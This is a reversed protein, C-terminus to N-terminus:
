RRLGEDPRLGACSQQHAVGTADLLLGTEETTEGSTTRSLVSRGSSSSVSSDPNGHHRRSPSRSGTVSIVRTSRHHGEDPALREGLTREGVRLVAGACCDDGLDLTAPWVVVVGVSCPSVHEPETSEAEDQADESM